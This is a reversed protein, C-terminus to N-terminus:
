SGLKDRYSLLGTQTRGPRFGWLYTKKHRPESLTQLDRCFLTTPSCYVNRKELVREEEGICM